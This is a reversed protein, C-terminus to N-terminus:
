FSEFVTDSKQQPEEQKQYFVAIGEDENGKATSAWKSDIDSNKNESIVELPQHSNSNRRIRDLTL